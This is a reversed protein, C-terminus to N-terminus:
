DVIECSLTMFIGDEKLDQFTVEGRRDKVLRNMELGSLTYTRKSVIGLEVIRGRVFQVTGELSRNQFRLVSDKEVYRIEVKKEMTVANGTEVRCLLAPKKFGESQRDFIELGINSIDALLEAVKRVQKEDRSSSLSGQLDVLNESIEDLAVMVTADNQFYDENSCVQLSPQLNTNGLAQIDSCVDKLNKSEIGALASFSLSFVTFLLLKKM